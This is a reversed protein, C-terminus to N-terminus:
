PAGDIKVILRGDDTAKLNVYTGDAKQASLVARVVQAFNENSLVRGIPRSILGTGSSHHIVGLRFISQAVPGNVYVVRFYHARPTIAFARGPLGISAGVKTSDELDVDVGNVAWQFKLGATASEVDSSVTISMFAVDKVDEFEGTYVGGAGLPTESVNKLSIEGTIVSPSSQNAM